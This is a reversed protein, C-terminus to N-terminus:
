SGRYTSYSWPSVLLPVHYHEDPNDIGFQLPVIDLFPTGSLYTGTGCFYDGVYFKWEYRGVQMERGGKPGGGNNLRGEANTTFSWMFGDALRTLDVRMHAAPCGNATDLVHCTLYGTADSTDICALLRMWAIKHVQQLATVIETEVSPNSVRGRLAALVTDKTANRVVLIFPFNFKTKYLENHENFIAIEDDTMSHLGSKSQEERSEATLSVNVKSSLDPHARLLTMKVESPAADVIERLAKALGSVTAITRWEEKDKAVFTEAVWSSHEYIGGLFSVIEEAPKALLETVSPRYPPPESSSTM